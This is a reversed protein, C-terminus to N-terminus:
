AATEAAEFDPIRTEVQRVVPLLYGTVGVLVTLLGFLVFMLSMGAGTGTGVLGGFTGAWAGGPEMAPEFVNDALLGSTIMAFPTTIQAIMVRASFVKGQVDPPVKSQWIAQNSANILPSCATVILAGVVWLPLAQGLGFAIIGVAGFVWGLLVGHIKRQFGSWISMVIGGIVGGIGAAANVVALVSEDNGTRALIMASFLVFVTTTLLNGFFFVLQLGFLSRRALIYRFGYLTEALLGGRSADGEASRKVTPVAIIALTFLAVFFTAIDIALIGNLKVLAYLGAAAIPAFIGSTAGALSMMASTRSYQSKDVMTTIAASYAPFQFAEFASAFAGAAYVHWIQLSGDLSLLFMAVTAAVAGIDSLMMVLKRNWRDVLAGAIPTLLINPAFSFFAMLALATAEGTLEWAWLTLAFRTMGTGLLSVFQGVWVVTFARM